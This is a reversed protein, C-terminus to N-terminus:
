SDDTELDKGRIRDKVAKIKRRCTRGTLGTRLTFLLDRLEESMKVKKSVLETGGEDQFDYISYSYRYYVALRTTKGFTLIIGDIQTVGPPKDLKRPIGPGPVGRGPGQLMKEVATESPFGQKLFADNWEGWSHLRDDVWDDRM